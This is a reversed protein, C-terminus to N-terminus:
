RSSFVYEGSGVEFVAYGKAQRLFKVGAVREVTQGGERVSATDKAPVYV